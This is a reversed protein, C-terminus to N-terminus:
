IEIFENLIQIYQISSFAHKIEKFYDMFVPNEALFKGYQGPFIGDKNKMEIKDSNVSYVLKIDFPTDLIDEVIRHFIKGDWFFAGIKEIIGLRLFSRKLCNLFM